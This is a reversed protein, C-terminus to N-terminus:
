NESPSEERGRRGHLRLGILNFVLSVGILVGSLGHMFGRMFSTADRWGESTVAVFGLIGFVLFAGGLILYRRPNRDRRLLLM